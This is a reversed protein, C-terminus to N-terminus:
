SASGDWGTPPWIWGCSMLAARAYRRRATACPSSPM